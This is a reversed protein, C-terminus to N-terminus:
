AGHLTLSGGAMTVSSNGNSVTITGPSTSTVTLGKGNEIVSKTVGNSLGVPTAAPSPTPIKTGGTIGGTHVSGVPDHPSIACGPTPVTIKGCEKKQKEAHREKWEKHDREKWDKHESLVRKVSAPQGTIVFHPTINGSQTTGNHHGHASAMDATAVLAVGAAFVSSLWALRSVTKNTM